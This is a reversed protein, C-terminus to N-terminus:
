RAPHQLWKHSFIMHHLPHCALSITTQWAAPAGGRRCGTAATAAAATPATKLPLASRSALKAPQVSHLESDARTAPGSVPQRLGGAAAEAVHVEEGRGCASQM